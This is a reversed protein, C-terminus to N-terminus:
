KMLLIILEPILFLSNTVILWTPIYNRIPKRLLLNIGYSINVIMNIIFSLVFGIVIVLSIIDGAPPQDM